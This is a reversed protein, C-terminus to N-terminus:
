DDGELELVGEEQMRTAQRVLQQRVRELDPALSGPPAEALVRLANGPRQRHLILVQALKLRLKGSAEPYYRCHDRMLPVSEAEAQRGHMAKILEYLDAQPPWRVLSRASKQYAAVAGALDGADILRRVRRVAVAARQDDSPEGPDAVGVAVVERVKTKRPRSAVKQNDLMRERQKWQRSLQRNKKFVSFLDWGECDVFNLKLLAFAMLGGWLAGNLHGLNSVVPRGIMGGWILGIVEQVLYFIAVTTYRFDWHFTLVRLLIVFIALCNLENRPAWIMCMALLGFIEASAGVAPAPNARLMVLQMLAGHLAGILLYVVLYKWAGLKGEVVIGFAWLFVMNGLLHIIDFHLFNHTVWQLPHLGDGLQLAYTEFRTLEIRRDGGESATAAPEDDDDFYREESFQPPVLIFLAVNLVILGVTAFPWHYIPADTGTPIVLIM